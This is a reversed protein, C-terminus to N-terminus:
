LPALLPLYYLSNKSLCVFYMVIMLQVCSVCRIVAPLCRWLDSTHSMNLIFSDFADWKIIVSLEILWVWFNDAFRMPMTQLLPFDISYIKRFLYCYKVARIIRQYPSPRMFSMKSYHSVKEREVNQKRIKKEFFNGKTAIIERGAVMM